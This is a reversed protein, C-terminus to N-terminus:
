VGEKEPFQQALEEFDEIIQQRRIGRTEARTLAAIAARDSVIKDLEAAENAEFAEIRARLADTDVVM